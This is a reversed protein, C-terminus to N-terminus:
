SRLLAAIDRAATEGQTIAELIGAPQSADGVIRVLGFRQQLAELLRRQSRYGAAWILGDAELTEPQGSRLNDLVIGEAECTRIRCRTRTRVAQQKLRRMLALRSIDEIDAALVSKQEVIIVSNGQLALMEATECGSSGGGAVVLRSRTLQVRGGLIDELSYVPIGGEGAFPVALPEAGSALIVADAELGDLEGAELRRGLRVEIGSADLERIFYDRLWGVKEKYPPMAALNLLGGATQAAEILCVKFGLRQLTLAAQMGAPGAGVILVKGMQPRQESFTQTWRSERAALPNVTCTMRRGKMSNSICNNCSICPRIRHAEDKLARAPWYPDAILGRGVWIFDSRSQALAAEATEPRRIVGGGLVPISVAAKVAAPLHMRWAEEYVAPEVTVHGSEYIGASVNLLDAGAEELLRACAVGEDPQIGTKLFDDANFRVSLALGPFSDKIGRIIDCTLRARNELSGGYDDGRKNTHPSLFQSLLYGHAAHLEVGDFGAQLAFGAAAVFKGALLPIEETTLERPVAKMMRCAIPSPAVPQQGETVLPVTQRGAHHLQIFARAGHSKIAAALESLGPVCSQRDIGIQSTHGRGLPSDVCAIEVIIVGAGGRAREEYYAILADTVEGTFSALGTAMPPMIIRNRILLGGIRGESALHPYKM